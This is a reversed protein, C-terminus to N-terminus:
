MKRFSVVRRKLLVWKSRNWFYTPFITLTLVFLAKFGWRKRDVSEPESAWALFTTVDKAMQSISSPTGDDFEVQGESLAQAM